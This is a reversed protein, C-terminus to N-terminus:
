WHIPGVTGCYLHFRQGHEYYRLISLGRTYERELRDQHMADCLRALLSARSPGLPLTLPLISPLAPCPYPYPLTPISCQLEPPGEGEGEGKEVGVRGAGSM